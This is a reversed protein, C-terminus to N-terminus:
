IKEHKEKNFASLKNLSLNMKFFSIRSGNYIKIRIMYHFFLIALTINFIM